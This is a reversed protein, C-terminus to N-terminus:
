GCWGARPGGSYSRALGESVMVDGLSQGGREVIRLKRGYRDSDEGVSTLTFTGANLLQQLRRTAATGREAEAACRPPHTEPTDIDAVRIKVGQFWFTDGDVVCNTGGGEHCFGFSASHALSRTESGFATGPEVDVPPASSPVMWANASSGIAQETSFWGSGQRALTSMGVLVFVTGLIVLRSVPIIKRFSSKWNSRSKSRPIPRPNRRGFPVVNIPEGPLRVPKAGKRLLRNFESLDSM